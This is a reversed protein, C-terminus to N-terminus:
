EKWEAGVNLRLERYTRSCRCSRLSPMVTHWVEVHLLRQVISNVLVKVVVLWEPEM